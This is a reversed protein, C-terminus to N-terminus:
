CLTATVAFVIRLLLFHKMNIKWRKTFCSPKIKAAGGCSSIECMIKGEASLSTSIVSTFVDATTNIQSSSYVGNIKSPVSM